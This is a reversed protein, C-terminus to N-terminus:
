CRPIASIWSIRSYLRMHISPFIMGQKSRWWRILDIDKKLVMWRGHPYRAAVTQSLCCWLRPSTHAVIRWFSCVHSLILPTMNSRHNLINPYTPVCHMFIERLADYPLKDIPSLSPHSLRSAM